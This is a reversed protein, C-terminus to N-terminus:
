GRRKRKRKDPPEATKIAVQRAMEVLRRDYDKFKLYVNLTVFIFALTLAYFLLDAGRGVGVSNALSNMKEPYLVALLGALILLMFAVKKGARIRAQNRNRLFWFVTLVLAAILLFQIIM